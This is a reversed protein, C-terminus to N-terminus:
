RDLRRRAYPVCAAVLSMTQPASWEEPHFARQVALRLGKFGNIYAVRLPLQVHMQPFYAAVPQGTLAANLKANLASRYFAEAAAGLSTYLAM